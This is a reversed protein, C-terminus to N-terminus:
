GLEENVQLRLRVGRGAADEKRAARVLRQWRQLTVPDHAFQVVAPRKGGGGAVALAV